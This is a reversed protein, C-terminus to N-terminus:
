REPSCTLDFTQSAGFKNGAQSANKTEFLAFFKDTWLKQRNYKFKWTMRQSRHSIQRGHQNQDPGSLLNESLM